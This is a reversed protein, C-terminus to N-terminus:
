EGSAILPRMGRCSPWNNCGLFKQGAFRATRAIAVHMDTGCLPCKTHISYIRLPYLRYGVRPFQALIAAIYSGEERHLRDLDALELEAGSQLQQWARQIAWHSVYDAHRTSLRLVWRSQETGIVVFPHGKDLTRLEKGYLAEVISMQLSM